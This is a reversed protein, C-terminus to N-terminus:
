KDGVELKSAIKYLACTVDSTVTYYEEYEYCKMKRRPITLVSNGFLGTPKRAETHSDM